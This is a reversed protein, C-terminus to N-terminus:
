LVCRWALPKKSQVKAQCYGSEGSLELSGKLVREENHDGEGRELQAPRGVRLRTCRRLEHGLKIAESINM